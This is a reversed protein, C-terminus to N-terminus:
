TVVSVNAQATRRSRYARMIRDRVPADYYRVSLWAICILTLVYLPLLYTGLMVNTHRLVLAQARPTGLPDLLPFHLIYLPYSINGLFASITNLKRPKEVLSAVVIIAPFLLCVVATQYLWSHAVGTSATLSGLFVLVIAASLWATYAAPIRKQPLRQMVRCLLVGVFFSFGVRSLGNLATNWKSGGDLSGDFYQLAGLFVLALTSIGAFVVTKAISMRVMAAYVLNAVLEAFLSWAPINFPFLHGNSVGPISPLLLLAPVVLGLINASALEAVKSLHRVVIDYFLAFLTGAIYLPYLRTMRTVIFERFRLSDRLRSEYAFAVVFGSLIFFFDVALFSNPFSWASGLYLPAHRAVIMIAALGRLGDLLHFRHSQMSHSRLRQPLGSM